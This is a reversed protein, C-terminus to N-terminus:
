PAEGKSVFEARLKALASRARSKVTGLPIGIKLAIESSSLGEFYGLWLVEREEASTLRLARKLRERDHSLPDSPAGDRFRQEDLHDDSLEVSLRRPASRRRDIARSRTRVALWSWVSGRAESYDNAHRWVELFVDHLVDEADNPQGLLHQAIASLKPAHREYLAALAASDGRSMRQVLEVDSSESRQEISDKM